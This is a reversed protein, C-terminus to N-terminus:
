DMSWTMTGLDTMGMYSASSFVDDDKWDPTQPDTSYKLYLQYSRGISNRSIKEFAHIYGSGSGPISYTGLIFSREGEQGTVLLSEGSDVPLPLSRQSEVSPVAEVMTVRPDPVGIVAITRDDSKRHDRLYSVRYDLVEQTRQFLAAFQEKQTKGKKSLIRKIEDRGLNDSIGDTMLWVRDGIELKKYIMQSDKFGSKGRFGLGDTIVNRFPNVELYRDPIRQDSWRLITLVRAAESSTFQGPYGNLKKEIRSLSANLRYRIVGDGDVYMKLLGKALLWDFIEGGKKKDFGIPQQDSYKRDTTFSDRSVNGKYFEVIASDDVSMEEVTGSRELFISSDGVNIGVLHHGGQPDAWVYVASLTTSGEIKADLIAQNAALVGEQLAKKVDDLSSFVKDEIHKRIIMGAMQSARAGNKEGGVGDAVIAMSKRKEDMWVFDQNEPYPGQVSRFDGQYIAMARESSKAGDTRVGDDMMALEVTNQFVMVHQDLPIIFRGRGADVEDQFVQRFEKSLGASVVAMGGMVLNNRIALAEDRELPVNFTINGAYLFRVKQRSAQQGALIGGLDKLEGQQLTLQEKSHVNERAIYKQAKVVRDQEREIGLVDSGMWNRIWTLEQPVNGPGIVVVAGESVSRVKQALLDRISDFVLWATKLKGGPMSPAMALEAPADSRVSAMGLPGRQIMGNLMEEYKGLPMESDPDYLNLVKLEHPLFPKLQLDDIVQTQGGFNDTWLKSLGSLDGDIKRLFAKQIGDTYVDDFRDSDISRLVAVATTEILNVMRERSPIYLGPSLGAVHNSFGTKVIGGFSNEWITGAEDTERPFFLDFGEVSNEDLSGKRLVIVDVDSRKRLEGETTNLNLLSFATSGLLLAVANHEKLVQDIERLAKVGKKVGYLEDHERDLGKVFEAQNAELWRRQHPALDVIPALYRERIFDQVTQIRAGAGQGELALLASAINVAGDHFMVENVRWGDFLMHLDGRREKLYGSRNYIDLHGMLEKSAWLSMEYSPHQLAMVLLHAHGSDRLADFFGDEFMESLFRTFFRKGLRPKGWLVEPVALIARLLEVRQANPMKQLRLHIEETKFFDKEVVIQRAIDAIDQESFEESSMMASEAKQGAMAREAKVLAEKYERVLKELQGVLPVDKSGAVKLIEQDNELVHLIRGLEQRDNTSPSGYALIDVSVANEQAKGAAAVGSQILAAPSGGIARNYEMVRNKLAPVYFYFFVTLVGLNFVTSVKMASESMSRTKLALKKGKLFEQGAVGAHHIDVWDLYSAEAVLWDREGYSSINAWVYDDLDNKEKPIQWKGTTKEFHINLKHGWGDWNRLVFDGGKEEMQLFAQRAAEERELITKLYLLQADRASSTKALQGWTDLYIEFIHDSWTRYDVRPTLFRHYFGDATMNSNWHIVQVGKRKFEELVAGMLYTGRNEGRPSTWLERLYARTPSSVDVGVHGEVDGSPNILLFGSEMHRRSFTGPTKKQLDIFLEEHELATLGPLVDKLVIVKGSVPGDVLESPKLVPAELLKKKLSAMAPEADPGRSIVTDFVGYDESTDVKVSTGVSVGYQQLVPMPDYSRKPYNNVTDLVIDGGSVVRSALLPLWKVFNGALDVGAKMMLVDFKRRKTIDDLALPFDEPKMLDMVRVFYFTTVQKEVSGPWQKKIRLFELGDPSTGAEIDEKPINLAECQELIGEYFRASQMEPSYFWGRNALSNAISPKRGEALRALFIKSDFTHNGAMVVESAGAALVPAMIDSGSALYLVSKPVKRGPNVIKLVKLDNIFAKVAFPEKGTRGFVEGYLDQVQEPNDTDIDWVTKQAQPSEGKIASDPMDIPNVQIREIMMASSPEDPVLSTMALEPIKFTVGGSFYKRPLIEQTLPDQEEKVYSYAGKKFAEVYQAWIRDSMKPDNIKVGSVKNQDVYVKSVISEKIKKKFWAALILSQYVQRLPAFNQGENVEKELIPIVVERLVSKALEQSDQSSLRSVLSSDAASPVVVADVERAEQSKARTQALYDTELMVKLRSEVIYAVASGNLMQRKVDSTEGREYVMAKDPMIWVKNFTDVPIDTTGFKEQAKVYVERWFKKGVDGEPYIVSATIQKLLYDQSLLDRGMETKGFESAIIRDKEYPSLNVWLDKEPITLSALFYRILKSSEDKLADQSRTEQGPNLIFDFQFPNESYVKIGQLVPPQYSASLNVMTGPQPLSLTQAFSSAVSTSVFAVLTVFSILRKFFKGNM